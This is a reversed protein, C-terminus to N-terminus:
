KCYEKLIEDGGYLGYELAKNYDTCTKVSDNLSMYSYARGRHSKSLYENVLGTYMKKQLLEVRKKEFLLIANTYDSIALQPKNLKLYCNARDFFVTAEKKRKLALSYDSIAGKYDNLERKIYARWTYYGMEASDITIANTLHSLGRATDKYYKFYINALQYHCLAIGEKKQSISILHELSVEYSYYDEGDLPNISPMSIERFYNTKAILYKEEMPKKELALNIQQKAESFGYVIEDYVLDGIGKKGDCNCYQSFLLYNVEPNYFKNDIAKHLDTVISTSNSHSKPSFYYNIVARTYYYEGNTSDRKILSDIYVLAKKINKEQSYKKLTPSELTITPKFIIQALCPNGIIAICFILGIFKM